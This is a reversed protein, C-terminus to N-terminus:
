KKNVFDRLYSCRNSAYKYFKTDDFEEQFEPLHNLAKSKRQKHQIIYDIM